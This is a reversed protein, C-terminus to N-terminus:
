VETVSIGLLPFNLILTYTIFFKNLIEHTVFFLQSKLTDLPCLRNLKVRYKDMFDLIGESFFFQYIPIENNNESNFLIM